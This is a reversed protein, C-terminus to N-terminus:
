PSLSGRAIAAANRTIEGEGIVHARATRLLWQLDRRRDPALFQHPGLVIPCASGAAATSVRRVDGVGPAREALGIAYERGGGHVDFIGGGRERPTLGHRGLGMRLLAELFLRRGLMQRPYARQVFRVAADLDSSALGGGSRPPLDFRDRDGILGLRPATDVNLALLGIQLLFAFGVEALTWPSRSLGHSELLLVVGKDVIEEGLEDPFLRGPAGSFRDLFVQFGCHSFADFLQDALDRTENRRYSIFLRRQIGGLATQRMVSEVLDDLRGHHFVVNTEDLSGGLVVGPDSGAPLVPLVVDQGPGRRNWRRMEEEVFPAIRTDATVV